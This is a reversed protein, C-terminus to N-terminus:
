WVWRTASSSFQEETEILGFAKVPTVEFFAGQMMFSALEARKAADTEYRAAWADAIDRRPDVREATGEISVVNVTDETMIVVHANSEINRVKLAAPAASFWFRDDFWVGWVPTAHPRERPDVTVVWFNRSAHLREEAWSWPLAGSLNDTPVGYDAMVPREISPM